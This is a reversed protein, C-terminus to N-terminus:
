NQSESVGGHKMQIITLGFRHEFPQFGGFSETSFLPEREDDIWLNNAARRQDSQARAFFPNDSNLLAQCFRTPFSRSEIQRETKSEQSVREGPAPLL